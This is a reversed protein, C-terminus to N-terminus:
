DVGHRLVRGSRAGTLRGDALVQAGNVWVHQVGESLRCPDTWTANERVQSLDLVVLDARSGVAVRGRHRLGLREAAALTSKHVADALTLVKRERVYRELLRAHAGFSRPHPRGPASEPMAIGDSGVIALPHALFEAVDSEQRYFLVVQVRNGHRACLDLCLEEPSVGRGAAADAVSVGELHEEGPGALSIVVRQWDWPIGGYLGHSLEERARERREPDGLMERLGVEGEEQLWGPLYQTLSSASADYPYVDYRVDVGAARAATFRDIVEGARGWMVPDNLAVHSFQVRVGTRRGVEIAEDFTGFPTGPARSHTAYLADQRQVVAALACIETMAAFMSPVYTLGTSLGFAGQEFNERLTAAMEDLLEPGVRIDATGAAAIRLAGHGLLPALNMVPGVSNVAHAYGDFDSWDADFPPAGLGQVFQELQRRRRPAVPFPSFGCNGVVETTVGQALKSSANPDLLLSIDSHTHVDIFGPTLVLGACDLTAAAVPVAAGVPAVFDITEGRVGVNGVFPEAGTGDVVLAGSLLIDVERVHTM